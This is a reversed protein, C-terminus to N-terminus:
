NGINDDFLAVEAAKRAIAAQEKTEYTGLNYRKGDKNIYALYKGNRKNLCVGKIGSTNDTRIKVKNAQKKCGCSLNITEKENRQLWSPYKYVIKGCDCKCEWKGDVYRILSLMGYKKNKDIVIGRCKCFSQKRLILNSALLDFENGCKCTVHYYTRNNKRFPKGILLNGQETGELSNTKYNNRKSMYTFEDRSLLM